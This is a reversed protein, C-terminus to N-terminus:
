RNKKVYAALLGVVQAVAYTAAGAAWGPVTSLDLQDAYGLAATAAVTLIFTVLAGVKSEKALSNSGDRNPGNTLAPDSM